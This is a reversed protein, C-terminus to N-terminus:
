AKNKKEFALLKAKMAVGGRGSYGGLGGDQKVVRHCPVIIQVPNVALAGGVANAAHRYGLRRAIEIYTVTGGYPIKLVEQLVARDYGTMDRLDLPVDFERRIGALYENLMKEVTKGLESAVPVCSKSDRLLVGLKLRALGEGTVAIACRGWPTDFFEDRTDETYKSM